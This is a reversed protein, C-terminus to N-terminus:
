LDEQQGPFVGGCLQEAPSKRQPGQEGRSQIWEGRSRSRDRAANTVPFADSEEEQKRLPHDSPSLGAWGAHSVTAESPQVGPTCPRDVSGNGAPLM